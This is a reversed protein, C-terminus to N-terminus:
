LKARLTLSLSRGMASIGSSYTKYHLDLINTLGAQLTIQDSFEYQVSYNLTFWAPVGEPVEDGNANVSFAGEDLNDVGAEDFTSPAKRANFVLGFRQKLEKNKYEVTIKGFLPAIHALVKSRNENSYDESYNTIKGSTFTLDFNTSWFKNWQNSMYFSSGYIFAGDVNINSQINQADPNPIVYGEPIKFGDVKVIANRMDNYYLDINLLHKKNFHKSVNIEFNTTYESKLNLNPVVVNDGKEYFKTIDDINPAHFGTSVIGAIKWSEEPHFVVSTNWNVDFNHKDLYPFPLKLGKKSSTFDAELRTKTARLGANLKVKESVSYESKIYAAHSSMEAMDTPYRTIVSNIVTDTDPFYQNATSHVNNFTGEYGYGFIGKTFNANLSYVDVNELQNMRYDNSTKKSHRTEKINQFAAVIDAKDFVQNPKWDEYTASTLVRKQPGYYWDSFKLVDGKYDNLQDYRNINSSRSYQLNGIVRSTESPMFVVKQLLDVQSYGTRKQINLNDNSKMVGEDFYHETKGWDDYGHLRNAGMRLEGFNKHTFSSLFAIKNKGYELDVHSILSSNGTTYTSYYNLNTEDTLDPIRTRFHVVGGLADSGYVVSSPGYLIESNALISPDVTISNQLHGGRYIANNMRVGDIMLLIRNAENGRINPSGGGSQSKQVSIGPKNSLLDASTQPNFKEIERKNIIIRREARQKLLEENNNVTVVIEQLFNIDEALHLIKTQKLTTYSIYRDEYLSHSILLTDGEKWNLHFQYSGDETSIKVESLDSANYIHVGAIPNNDLDQIYNQALGTLGCLIFLFSFYLQGM